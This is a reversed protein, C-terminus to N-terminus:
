SACLKYNLWIVIIGGLINPGWMILEPRVLGQGALAQAGISLLYYPAAFIVALLLNATKQRRHTVVAVPFGLFIFILPAFSWSIKRHYETVLPTPDVLLRHMDDIQQSLEKLTMARPKKEGKENGGKIIDLTMFSTKFNLKYFNNPNNFDPEDSTGNMLKLLIKKQGPVPTFEGEQAIITRTPKGNPQPQYIRINYLRNGEVKYIFLIHSDFDDIFTGAELLAAPNKAGTEHLIDRQAQYAKPIIRDNLILLFLTMVLGAAALPALLRKLSIGSARIAIIENDSSLRGFTLIVTALAAIPLTYGLLVPINYLFALFIAAFDVGKNIVKNALQPLYGLLFVFTLVGLSITFPILCEKLIYNRLIRM